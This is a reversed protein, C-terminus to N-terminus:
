YGAAKDVVNLLPLGAGFRRVNEHFLVDRRTGTLAANGATHPTIVVNRMRLLPHGNPLPEPETVDLGAGGLTGNQLAQVLANTDVIPGRGINILIADDKMLALADADFLGNTESTLPLCIVVVDAEPLFRALDEDTGLEDVFSPADRKTRVTALVRMYFGHARKAVETGIGGIGAVLMTSGALARQGSGAGRDWTGRMQAEMYGPLDRSLSLALAMVHEAIVPGHIGKMNTMVIAPNETLGKLDMYGDVGASWSQVWRLNTAAALFEPTLLHADAGRFEAARTVAQEPTLGTVFEINPALEKLTRAEDESVQSTLFKLTGTKDSVELAVVSGKDSGVELVNPAPPLGPPSLCASAVTLLLASAILPLKM